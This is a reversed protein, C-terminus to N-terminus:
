RRRHPQLPLWHQPHYLLHHLLDCHLVEAMQQHVSSSLMTSTGSARGRSLGAQVLLDRHKRSFTLGDINKLSLCAAGNIERRNGYFTSQLSLYLHRQQERWVSWFQRHTLMNRTCLQVQALQKLSVSLQKHSIPNQGHKEDKVEIKVDAWHERGHDHPSPAATNAVLWWASLISAEKLLSV